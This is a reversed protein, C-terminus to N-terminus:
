SRDMYASSGWAPLCGVPQLVPIWPELCLAARPQEAVHEATSIDGAAGAVAAGVADAVAVTEGGSGAANDM